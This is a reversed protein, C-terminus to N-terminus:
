LFENKRIRRVNRLHIHVKTSGGDSRRDNVLVTTEKSESPVSHVFLKFIVNPFICHHYEGASCVYRRTPGKLNIGQISPRTGQISPRRENERARPTVNSTPQLIKSSHNKFHM